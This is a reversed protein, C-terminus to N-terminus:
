TFAPRRIAAVIRDIIALVLLSAGFLPLLMGAVVIITIVGRLRAGSVPLPAGLGGKSRRRWWMTFGSVVLIVIAICPLLMLLQNARGFYRGMHIQVGLEIAKAGIGYRGWGNGGILEGSWRDFQLTRQGQPRDPQTSLTYVGTPGLPLHLSYAGVLGHAAAQAAIADAGAVAALDADGHPGIADNHGVHAPDSKPMSLTEQSWPANGLAEGISQSQPRVFGFSQAENGIGLAALAGRVLPGQVGAWPLGTLIMFAILALAWVGTVAHLDRWFIRGRAALRPWLVGGLSANNRPWWLFIGSVMMALAWCAALEVITEGWKGLTLSGHVGHAFGVLTGAYVFSGLVRASGPDVAVQLPEGVAPTVHVM